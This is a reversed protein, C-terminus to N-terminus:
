QAVNIMNWIRTYHTQLECRAGYEGISNRNRDGQTRARDHDRQM